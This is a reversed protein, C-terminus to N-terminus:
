GSSALSSFSPEDRALDVAGIPPPGLGILQRGGALPRQVLPEGRIVRQVDLQAVLARQLEEEGVRERRLLLEVLQAPYTLRM